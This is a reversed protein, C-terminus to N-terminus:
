MLGKLTLRTSTSSSAPSRSSMASRRRAEPLRSPQRLHRRLHVRPLPSPHPQHPTLSHPTTQPLHPTRHVHTTQPLTRRSSEAKLEAKFLKLDAQLEANSHMLTKFSSQLEANSIMIQQFRLETDRQLEAHALMIAEERHASALLAEQIVEPSGVSDPTNSSSRSHLRGTVEITAAAASRTMAPSPASPSYEPHGAAPPLTIPSDGAQPSASAKTEM